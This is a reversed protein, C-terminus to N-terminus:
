QLLLMKKVDSWAGVKIMYYYVGSSLHGADWEVTHFGAKQKGSVLTAVKQGLLNYVSLEVHNGVTLQWSIVTSPNFPNPYNQHLYYTELKASSGKSLGAPDEALNQYWALLYEYDSYSIIDSRGDGDVDTVLLSYRRQRNDTAIVHEIFTNYGDTKEYWAIMDTFSAIVDMDNDGDLDVPTTFIPAPHSVIVNMSSFEGNGNLNECWAIQDPGDKAFVIDLDGDNDMDTANISRLNYTLSITSQAGFEGEGDLNEYWAVQEIPEWSGSVVDRDWDGDIDAAILSRTDQSKKTIGYPEGFNGGGDINELWIVNYPGVFFSNEEGYGAAIVDLDEDGDLDAADVSKPWKLSECIIRKEGFNWLGDLNEFWFVENYSHHCALIDEDGDSDIDRIKFDYIYDTSINKIKIVGSEKQSNIIIRLIGYSNYIFDEDGDKDIDSAQILYFDQNSAILSQYADFTGNGDLNEIYIIDYESGVLIDMDGDRDADNVSISMVGVVKQIPHIENFLGNGDVNEIWVIKNDEPSAVIVDPDEDGDIDEFAFSSSGLTTSIVNKSFDGQGTTNEYWVIQTGMIACIDNDGDLDMDTVYVERTTGYFCTDIRQTSGFNGQGDINEYWNPGTYHTATVVDNDGDGDLDASFVSRPAMEEPQDGEVKIQRYTGFNGKGDLNEFWAVLDWDGWSAVVDMDGDNDIDSPFVSHLDNNGVTLIKVSEFPSSFTGAGDLNEYWLIMESTAALIDLDEDGDMDVPYARYRAGDVNGFQKLTSYTNTNNNYRFWGLKDSLGTIIDDGGDQDLDAM